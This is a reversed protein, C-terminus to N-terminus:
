EVFALIHLAPLFLPSQSKDPDVFPTFMVNKVTPSRQACEIGRSASLSILVSPFSCWLMTVNQM